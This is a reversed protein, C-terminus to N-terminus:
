KTNMERFLAIPTMAVSPFQVGQTLNTMLGLHDLLAEVTDEIQGGQSEFSGAAVEGRNVQLLCTWNADIVQGYLGTLAAPSYRFMQKDGTGVFVRSTNDDFPFIKIRVLESYFQRIFSAVEKTPLNKVEGEVRKAERYAESNSSDGGAMIRTVLRILKPLNDLLEIGSQYDVIKVIGTALVFDGDRFTTKKWEIGDSPVNVVLEKKRLGSLLESFIFDHLSKTESTSKSFHYDGIGGLKGVLPVRGEIEAQGGAHHEKESIRESPLGESLQAVFSRVREIDLYIFDRIHEKESM